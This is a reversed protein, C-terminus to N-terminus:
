ARVRDRDPSAFHRLGGACALKTLAFRGSPVNSRITLPRRTTAPAPDRFLQWVRRALHASSAPVPETARPASPEAVGPISMLLQAREDARARGCGSSSRRLPQSCEVADEMVRM